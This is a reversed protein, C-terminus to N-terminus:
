EGYEYPIPRGDHGIVEKLIISLTDLSASIEMEVSDFMVDDSCCKRLESVLDKMKAVLADIKSNDM